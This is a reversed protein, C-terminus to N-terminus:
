KGGDVIAASWQETVMPWKGGAVMRGDSAVEQGGDAVEWNNDALKWGGVVAM